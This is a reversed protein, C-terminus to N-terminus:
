HKTKTHVKLGSPFNCQFDCQQCSYKAGEHLAKIHKQLNASLTAKYNCEHCAFKIGEHKNQMHQRLNGVTSAQYDCQPCPYKIGEHKAELHQKLHHKQTSIYNCQNCKFQKKDHPLLTTYSEAKMENSSTFKFTAESNRSHNESADIPDGQKFNQDDENAVNKGIEKIDLSKAVNLFENMREQCLTVEGLYIFKLISELEEHSIGRLYISTNHLNSALINRFTTSCASLIFKHVRYQHQDDSVLTVDTFEQTEMLNKFLGIGHSSFTHWTLNIEQKM